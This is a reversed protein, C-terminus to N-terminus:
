VGISNLSSVWSDKIPSQERGERRIAVQASAGVAQFIYTPDGYGVCGEGGNRRARAEKTSQTPRRIDNMTWRGQGLPGDM